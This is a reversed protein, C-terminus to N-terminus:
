TTMLLIFVWPNLGRRWLQHLWHFVEQQMPYQLLLNSPVMQHVSQDYQLHVGLCFDLRCVSRDFVSSRHHPVMCVGSTSATPIPGHFFGFGLRCLSDRRRELFWGFCWLFYDQVM